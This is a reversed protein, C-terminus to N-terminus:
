KLSGAALCVVHRATAMTTLVDCSLPSLPSLPSQPSWTEMTKVVDGNDQGGVLKVKGASKVRFGM